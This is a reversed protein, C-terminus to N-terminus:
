FKVLTNSKIVFKVRGNNDKAGFMSLKLIKKKIRWTRDKKIVFANLIKIYFRQTILILHGLHQGFCSLEHLWRSRFLKIDM